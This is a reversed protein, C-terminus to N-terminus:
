KTLLLDLMERMFKFDLIGMQYYKAGRLYIKNEKLILRAVSSVYTIWTNVFIRM